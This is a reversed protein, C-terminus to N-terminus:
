PRRPEIYFLTTAMQDLAEAPLWLNGDECPWDKRYSVCGTGESNRLKFECRGAKENWRSGVLTSAHDSYAREAKGGHLVGHDYGVGVPAGSRFIRLTLRAAQGEDTQVQHPVMPKLPLPHRCSRRLTEDSERQVARGYAEAFSALDEVGLSARVGCDNLIRWDNYAPDWHGTSSRVRRFLYNYRDTALVSAQSPLDRETCLSPRLNYAMVDLSPLGGRMDTAWDFLRQQVLHNMGGVYNREALESLGSPPPLAGIMADTDAVTAASAVDLASVHDKPGIGQNVTILDAAVFAHCMNSNGQYAPFGLQPTFDIDPCDAKTLPAGSARSAAALLLLLLSLLGRAM